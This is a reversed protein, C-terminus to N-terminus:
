KLKFTLKNDKTEIEIIKNSKLEDNLISEHFFIGESIAEKLINQLEPKITMQDAKNDM